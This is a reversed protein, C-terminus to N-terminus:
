AAKNQKEKRERVIEHIWKFKFKRVCVDLLFLVISIIAFAMTPDVVRELETVFDKFISEPDELDDGAIVTGGGNKAIDALNQKVVVLDEASPKLYEASYSFSKYTEYSSVVTGDAGTKEFTLKYIGGRKAVFSTRTYSNESGLASTSYLGEDRGESKVEGLSIKGDSFVEEVTASVYEGEELTAYVSINNTYNTERLNITIETPRINETPMLNAVANRIFARGTADSTFTDALTVGDLMLSGVMGKGYRWQAYIPVDYAGKLVLEADKKVKSGYFKDISVDLKDMAGDVRDLDAVIPSSMNAITPNFPEYDVETIMPLSLEKQISKVIEESNRITYLTGHGKDVAQQMMSQAQQNGSNMMIVSLTIGNRYNNEIYAEYDEQQEPPVEGDTIIIIHRKDVVGEFASLATGAKDIADPFVTGGIAKDLEEIANRLTTEKTRPTMEIISNYDDALTMLGIWDRETTANLV